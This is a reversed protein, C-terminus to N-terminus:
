GAPATIFAYLHASHPEDFYIGEVNPLCGSLVAISGILFVDKEIADQFLATSERLISPLNEYIDAPLQPTNFLGRGKQRGEEDGSVIDTIEKDM